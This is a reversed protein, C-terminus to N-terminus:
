ILPPDLIKGLPTRWSGFASNNKLKKASSQMFIFSNSGRPPPSERAGGKSGGIYIILSLNCISSISHFVNTHEHWIYNYVYVSQRTYSMWKTSLSEEPICIFDSWSENALPFDRPIAKKNLYRHPGNSNQSMSCTLKCPLLYVLSNNQVLKLVPLFTNKMHVLNM